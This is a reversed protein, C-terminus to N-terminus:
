IGNKNAIPAIRDLRKIGYVLRIAQKQLTVIRNLHFKAANSWVALSSTLFTYIYAYYVLQKVYM